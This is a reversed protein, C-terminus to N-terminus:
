AALMFLLIVGCAGMTVIPQAASHDGFTSELTTDEAEERVPQANRLKRRHLFLLIALVTGGPVFLELMLYPSIAIALARTSAAFEGLTKMIANGM